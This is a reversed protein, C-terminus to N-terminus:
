SPRQWRRTTHPSLVFELQKRLWKELPGNGDIAWTVLAGNYTTNVAEALANADVNPKVERDAIAQRILGEIAHLVARSHNTAHAGLEPDTLDLQLLALNNTLTRKDGLQAGSAVLGEVLQNLPGTEDASPASFPQAANLAQHEAYALLLARKSGFRQRVAPATVGVREAVNQVTLADPGGEGVAATVAAFIAEDSVKRPRGPM